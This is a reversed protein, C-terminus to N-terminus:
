KNESGNSLKEKILEIKEAYKKSMEYAMEPDTFLGCSEFALKPDIKDSGLM